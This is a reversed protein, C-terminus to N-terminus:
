FYGRRFPLTIKVPVRSHYILYCMMLIGGWLGMDGFITYNTNRNREYESMQVDSTKLTLVTQWSMFITALTIITAAITVVRKMVRLREADWINSIKFSRGMGSSRKETFNADVRLQRSLTRRDGARSPSLPSLTCSAARMHLVRATPTLNPPSANSHMNENKSIDKSSAESIGRSISPPELGKIESVSLHVEMQTQNTNARERGPVFIPMAGKEDIPIDLKCNKPNPSRIMGNKLSKSDAFPAETRISDQLIDSGQISSTNLNSLGNFRTNRSHNLGLSNASGSVVSGGSCTRARARARPRGKEFTADPSISRSLLGGPNGGVANVEKPLDEKKRTPLSILTKPTILNPDSKKTATRSRSLRLSLADPLRSGRLYPQSTLSLKSKSASTNINNCIKNLNHRTKVTYLLRILYFVTSMGPGLMMTVSCADLISAFLMYDYVIALPTLTAHAVTYYIGWGMYMRHIRAPAFFANKVALYHTVAISSTFELCSFALPVVACSFLIQAMAWNQVDESVARRFIFLPIAFIATAMLWRQTRRTSTKKCPSLLFLVDVIMCIGCVVVKISDSIRWALALM